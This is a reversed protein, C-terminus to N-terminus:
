PLDGKGAFTEVRRHYNNTVYLDRSKEDIVVDVPLLLQGPETGAEGILAIGQQTDRDFVLVLSRLSDALYILGRGNVALGEPRSFGYTSGSGSIGDLYNGHYDYIHVWARSSFYGFKGFDSVLVEGRAPDVTIGTPQYLPPAGPAPLIRVVEGRQDYVVVRSGQADTVFVLGAKPDIAIDSPRSIQGPDGLTYMLRGGANYVEVTDSSDNGVFMKGWGWAIGLPKGQIPISRVVRSRHPDWIMVMFQRIDTVALDGSPLLALRTPNTMTQADAVGSLAQVSLAPGLCLLAM